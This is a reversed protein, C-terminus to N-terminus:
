DEWLRQLCSESIKIVAQNIEKHTDIWKEVKALKRQPIFIMKRKTGVRVSLYSSLHGGKKRKKCWCNTKGCKRESTVISGYVFSGEHVQRVLRSRIAREERPFNGRHRM